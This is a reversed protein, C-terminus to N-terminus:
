GTARWHPMSWRWIAPNSFMSRCPAARCCCSATSRFSRCSAPCPTPMGRRRDHSCFLPCSAAGPSPSRIPRSGTGRFIKLLETRAADENWDRKRRIIEVLADIAAEADNSAFAAVAFDFRAQNDAPDAEMKARLSEIEGAMASGPRPWSSRQSPAPWTMPPRPKPAQRISSPGPKTPRGPKRSLRPDPGCLARNNDADQNLVEAYLGCRCQRHRGRGPRRRRYGAGADIPSPGADVVGGHKQILALRGLGSGPERAIRGSLWGRATRGQVRLRDPDVPDPAPRFHGPGQRRRDKVLRVAGGANQVVKEIIPGLTKCPGCWTAWFDVIVPVRALSRDRGRHLTRTPCGQDPSRRRTAPAPPMPTQSSPTWANVRTTRIKITSGSSPAKRGPILGRTRDGHGATPRCDVPLDIMGAPTRMGACSVCCISGARIRRQPKTTSPHANCRITSLIATALVM